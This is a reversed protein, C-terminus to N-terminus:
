ANKYKRGEVWGEALFSQKKEKPIRKSIGAKNTIWIYGRVNTNGKANEKSKERFFDAKAKNAISIKRKHEETKPVGKTAESKKRRTEESQHKAWYILHAYSEPPRKIRKQAESMRKRQEATIPTSRKRVPKGKKGLSIKKGIEPSRKWKKNGESYHRRVEESPNTKAESIKRKTEEKLPIGKHDKSTQIAHLKRTEEYIEPTVEINRFRKSNLMKNFAQSMKGEFARMLAYHVRFHENAELVVLNEKDLQQERTKLYCSPIIHHVERGSFKEAKLNRKIAFEIFTLYCNFCSIRKINPLYEEYKM